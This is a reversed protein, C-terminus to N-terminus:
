RALTEYSSTKERRAMLLTSNPADSQFGRGAAHGLHPKQYSMGLRPLYPAQHAVCLMSLYTREDVKILPLSRKWPPPLCSTANADKKGRPPM